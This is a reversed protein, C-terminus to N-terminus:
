VFTIVTKVNILVIFHIIYSIPCPTESSVYLLKMHITAKRLIPHIHQIQSLHLHALQILPPIKHPHEQSLVAMYLPGSTLELEHAQHM